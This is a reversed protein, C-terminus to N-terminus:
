RRHYNATDQAERRPRGDAVLVVVATGVAFLGCTASNLMRNLVTDVDALVIRIVAFWM